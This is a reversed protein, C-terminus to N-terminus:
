PEPLLEPLREPEELLGDLELELVPRPLLEEDPVDSVDPEIAPLVDPVLPLPDVEPLPDFVPLPLLALPEVYPEPEPLVDEPLSRVALPLPEVVPLPEVYPEPLVEPEPLMDPEPEVYPEPLVDPLEPRPVCIDLRDPLQLETVSMEFAFALWDDVELSESEFRYSTRRRGRPKRGSLSGGRAPDAGGGQHHVVAM